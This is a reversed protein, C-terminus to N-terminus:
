ATMINKTAVHAHRNSQVTCTSIIMVFWDYNYTPNAKDLTWLVNSIENWDMGNWNMGTWDLIWDVDMGPLLVEQTLEAM